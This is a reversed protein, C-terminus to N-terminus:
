FMAQRTPSIYSNGLPQRHVGVESPAVPATLCSFGTATQVTSTSRAQVDTSAFPSQFFRLIDPQPPQRPTSWLNSPVSPSTLQSPWQQGVQVWPLRHPRDDPNRGIYRLGNFPPASVFSRETMAANNHVSPNHLHNDIVGEMPSLQSIFDTESPLVSAPDQGTHLTANRGTNFTKSTTNSGRGTTWTLTSLDSGRESEIHQRKPNFIPHEKHTAFQFSQHIEEYENGLVFKMWTENDQQSGAQKNLGTETVTSQHVPGIVTYISRPTYRANEKPLVPPSSQRKRKQSRHAAPWVPSIQAQHELTFVRRPYADLTSNWENHGHISTNALQELHQNNSHSHSAQITHLPPGGPTEPSQSTQVPGSELKGADRNVPPSSPYTSQSQSKDRALISASKQEVERFAECGRFKDLTPLFSDFDADCILKGEDSKKVDESQQPLKQQSRSHSGTDGLKGEILGTTEGRFLSEKDLLMSESSAQSLKGPRSPTAIITPQSQHINSGIRISVDKFKPHNDQIWLRSDRRGQGQQHGYKQRAKDEESIRRRKAVNALQEASPFDMQLPRTASIALWDSRKLLNKKVDELTRPETSIPDDGSSPYECRIRPTTRLNLSIDRPVEPLATSTQKTSTSQVKTKGLIHGDFGQRIPLHHKDLYPRQLGISVNDYSGPLVQHHNRRSQRLRAKAFYEKQKKAM